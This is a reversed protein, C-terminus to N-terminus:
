LTRWNEIVLPYGGSKVTEFHATNGTVLAINAGLAIAAIMVDNSDVTTGRRKLEADIKGALLAAAPDFPLVECGALMEEFRAFQKAAQIRHLGSTIEMVTIVSITFAGRATQYALARAGVNPDREKFIESFIDTDVLVRDM